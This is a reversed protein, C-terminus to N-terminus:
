ELLGNELFSYYSEGVILFDLLKVNMLVSSNLVSKAFQKDQESPEVAQSPHNHILFFGTAGTMLARQMIERTSVCCFGVTGHAVEFVAIPPVLRTNCCVMYVREECQSRLHFCDNLMDAVADAHDLMGCEYNFSREKILQPLLNEDMELNYEIIM